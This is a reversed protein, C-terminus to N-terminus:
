AASLTVLRREIKPVLKMRVGLYDSVDSSTIRGHAHSALVLSTFYHGSRALAIVDPPAFGPRRKRARKREWESEYEQRKRRYFSDSTRKLILLRRLLAERSVAFRRALAEIEDDRWALASGHAETVGDELLARAPILVAGAIHNCFVEIRRRSNLDCVGGHALAAHTLEHILTFSRAAAPDHINAVVVPLVTTAISFGRAEDPDVENMQLVLSGKSEAAHRWGNFADHSSWEFQTSLSVGLFARVRGAVVEPNEDLSVRLNFRQAAEGEDELLELAIERRDFALDVEELLGPSPRLPRDRRCRRLDDILPRDRPPRPLYFVAIPRRYVRAVERLQPITPRSEGCEWAALREASIGGAKKAATEIDYGAKKRAWVLLAPEALAEVGRAVGV